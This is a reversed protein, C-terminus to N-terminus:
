RLVVILELARRACRFVARPVVVEVREHRLRHAAHVGGGGADVQGAEVAGHAHVRGIEVQAV